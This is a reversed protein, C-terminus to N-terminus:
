STTLAPAVSPARLSILELALNTVQQQAALDLVDWGGGIFHAYVQRDLVSTKLVPIPIGCQKIAEDVLSGLRTGKKMKNVLLRAPASPNVHTVYEASERAEWLDPTSPTTPIIIIDAHLVAARTSAESLDPKTDFILYDYPQGPVAIQGGTIRCSKNSTGQADWDQVAANRGARSLAGALLLSITSKGVGGKKAVVAINM